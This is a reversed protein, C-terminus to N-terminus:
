WKKVDDAAKASAGRSKGTKKDMADKVTGIRKNGRAQAGAVEDGIGNIDPASDVSGSSSSGLSVSGRVGASGSVNPRQVSSFEPMTLKDEIDDHLRDAYGSVFRTQLEQGEASLQFNIDDFRENGYYDRNSGMEAMGWERYAQSLNLSGAANNSEYWTAQDELRSALEESRRAEVTYSQAETLSTTLGSASSSIESSSSSSVSRVFGDRTKSWNRNESIQNLSGMIRNRDESAIGIDSDTWSHNRGGKLGLNSNLAGKEGKVGLAADGNLFWSVTIDDAARRSLGYQQQLNRSASDVESFAKHVSNSENTGAATESSQGQSYANRLENFRTVASSTSQQALNSFTESQSRSNSALTSLRSTFDQGLTPTFPYASNPVQDFSNDPFSTTQTGSESFGRTQAAGYSINPAISGQAFQRSFVSSNEINSNGLSVNGTSAERAAEEAANQSPNLYSTAQGSIALAGRAIGGALFPISAVLYGALIGIDNNVDVMGSFNALSLGTSGAAGSVDSAGKFMLIMHLIVFLPGWAALYFFGTIYGRLALPGTKPMLFLPFLVPFLAYFVVTLVVNLIPVWKMANQAISSYTRETQIDARTQAFVDVSSTGSSAAMGHIAQKMANITLVQRFIESANQSVGSLYSYAVPLDAFLKAKALAATQKPYLQRGFITGMEDIMTTWQSNLDNYTERCTIIDATVSDDPHRTLFKQARAASGPAIVIWIDESASLEKMSYRGLLLDYFVCQRFHEDLNAAFEPDSIRLSRTADFLRSGYIMGNRSYDLDTPLEFVTESSRVLYDGVQSTFSAMLALGLPVDAVQAPALSPNIRDTVHVDLRPVMLCMYILTAGLFWHLWARWDQNFAVVIVSLALGMVMAVQILSKYGGAGTWAAVANLVNVIYEGGGITFIEVM